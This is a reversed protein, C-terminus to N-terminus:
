LSHAWRHATSIRGAPHSLGCRPLLLVGSAQLGDDRLRHDVPLICDISRMDRKITWRPITISDPNLTPREM